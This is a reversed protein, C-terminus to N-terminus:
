AADDRGAALAEALTPQPPPAGKLGLLRLCRALANSYSLYQKGDRESLGGHEIARADFLAVHLTLTAIRDILARQVPSVRDPGGLHRILDARVRRMLAAEKTRGDLKGLAVPGSYPGISRVKETM